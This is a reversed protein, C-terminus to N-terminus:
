EEKARKGRDEEQSYLKWVLKKLPVVKVTEIVIPPLFGDETKKEELIIEGEQNEEGSVREVKADIHAPNWINYRFLEPWVDSVPKNIILEHDM